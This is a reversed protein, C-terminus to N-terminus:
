VSGVSSVVLANKVAVDVGSIDEDGREAVGFNQVEAEGFEFGVRRSIGGGGVSSTFSQSGFKEGTRAASDASDGIHGGLL